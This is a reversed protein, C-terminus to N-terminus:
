IMRGIDRYNVPFGMQDLIKEIPITTLKGELIDLEYSLENLMMSFDDRKLVRKLIIILAFLDDKGYIYEGDM